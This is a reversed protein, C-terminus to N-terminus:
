SSSEIVSCISYQHMYPLSLMWSLNYTTYIIYPSTYAEGLNLNCLQLLKLTEILDVIILKIILLVNMFYLAPPTHTHTFKDFVVHHAIILCQTHM